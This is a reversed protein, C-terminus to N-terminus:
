NVLDLNNAIGALNESLRLKELVAGTLWIECPEENDFLSNASNERYNRAGSTLWIIRLLVRM